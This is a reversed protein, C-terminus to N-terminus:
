FFTSTTEPTVSTNLHWCILSYPLAFAFLFTLIKTNGIIDSREREIIATIAAIAMATMGIVEAVPMM